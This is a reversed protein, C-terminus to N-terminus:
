EDEALTAMLKKAMPVQKPPIDFMVLEGGQGIKIIKAIPEPLSSTDNNEFFYSVPIDFFSALKDLIDAKPISGNKWATIKSTSYGLAKVVATPTTDNDNCLKKLKDFFLM